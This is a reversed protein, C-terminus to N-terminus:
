IGEITTLPRSVLCIALFVIDMLTGPLQHDKQTVTNFWEVKADQQLM